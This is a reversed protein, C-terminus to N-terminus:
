SNLSDSYRDTVSSTGNSIGTYLNNGLQVNFSNM